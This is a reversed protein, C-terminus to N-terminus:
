LNFRRGQIIGEAQRSFTRARLRDALLKVTLPCLAIQLRTVNVLVYSRRNQAIVKQAQGRGHPLGLAAAANRRNKLTEAESTDM